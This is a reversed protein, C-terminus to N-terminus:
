ADHTVIEIDGERRGVVVVVVVMVVCLCGCVKWDLKVM